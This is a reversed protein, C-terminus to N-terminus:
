RYFLLWLVQQSLNETARRLARRKSGSFFACLSLSLNGFSQSFARSIPTLSAPLGSYRADPLNKFADSLLPDTNGKGQNGNERILEEHSVLRMILFVTIIQYFSYRTSTAANFM